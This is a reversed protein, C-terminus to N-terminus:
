GTRKARKGLRVGSVRTSDEYISPSHQLLLILCFGSVQNAGALRYRWHIFRAVGRSCIVALGAPPPEARDVGFVFCPMVASEALTILAALPLRLENQSTLLNSESEIM